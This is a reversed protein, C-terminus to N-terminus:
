NTRDKRCESWRQCSRCFFRRKNWINTSNWYQISYRFWWRLNNWKIYVPPIFNRYIWTCWFFVDWSSIYLGHRWLWGGSWITCRRCIILWSSYRLRCCIIWCIGYTFTWNIRYFCSHSLSCSSNEINKLTKKM